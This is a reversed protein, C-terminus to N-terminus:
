NRSSLNVLLRSIFSIVKFFQGKDIEEIDGTINNANPQLDAIFKEDKPYYLDEYELEGLM